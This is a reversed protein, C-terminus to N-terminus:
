VAVHYWINMILFRVFVFHKRHIVKGESSCLSGDSNRRTRRPEEQRKLVDSPIWGEHIQPETDSSVFRVKWRPNNAPSEVVEVFQGKKLSVEDEALKTYNEVSYYTVDTGSVEDCAQPFM